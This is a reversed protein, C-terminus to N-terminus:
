PRMGAAILRAAFVSLELVTFGIILSAAVGAIVLKVLWWRDPGEAREKRTLPRSFDLHLFRRTFM